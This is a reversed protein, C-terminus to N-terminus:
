IAITPCFTPKLVTDKGGHAVFLEVTVVRRHRYALLAALFEVALWLLPKAGIAEWTYSLQRVLDAWLGGFLAIPLWVKAMRGPQKLVETSSPAMTSPQGTKATSGGPLHNLIPRM